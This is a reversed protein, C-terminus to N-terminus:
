GKLVIQMCDECNRLCHDGGGVALYKVLKGKEELQNALEVGCQLPVRIDDTGQLILIPLDNRIDKIYSSPERRSIWEHDNIGKLGFEEILMDQMDPRTMICTRLSVMGSLSVAKRFNKQLEPFRGLALFMQMGGRSAGVLVMDTANIKVGLKRAIQPIFQVLHFVDNVDKGGFEDSGESVGGRYTTTIVTHNEYCFISSGPNPIGFIRNGGRLYVITPYMEPCPVFSLLGKIRLGDSPYFFIFFRRNSERIAVKIKDHTYHGEIVQDTIETFELLDDLEYYKAIVEFVQNMVLAEDKRTANSEESWAPQGLHIHQDFFLHRM